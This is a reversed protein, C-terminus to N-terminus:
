SAVYVSETMEKSIANRTIRLYVKAGAEITIIQDEIKTIKGLIGSSTVIQDGKKLDDMFKKQDRQKKTQPRILFLWFVLMMAGLFVFNLTGPNSSAQLWIPEGYFMM